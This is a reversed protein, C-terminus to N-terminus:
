EQDLKEKRGFWIVHLRRNTLRGAHEEQNPLYDRQPDGNPSIELSCVHMERSLTLLLISTRGAKVENELNTLYTNWDETSWGKQFNTFQTCACELIGYLSRGERVEEQLVEIYSIWGTM